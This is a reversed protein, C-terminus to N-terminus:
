TSQPSRPLRVSPQTTRHQCARAQSLSRKSEQKRVPPQRPRKKLTYRLLESQPPRRLWPLACPEICAAVKRWPTLEERFLNTISSRKAGGGQGQKRLAM